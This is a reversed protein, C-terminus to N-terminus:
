GGMRKNGFRVATNSQTRAGIAACRTCREAIAEMDSIEVKKRKLAELFEERSTIIGFQTVIFVDPNLSFIKEGVYNNLGSIISVVAVITMVGIIVGLLTLFSRMKHRGLASAAIRLTEM